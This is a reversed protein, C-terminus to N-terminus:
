SGVAEDALENREKRTLPARRKPRLGLEVRPSSIADLFMENGMGAELKPVSDLKEKAIFLKEAYIGYSEEQDEDHFTLTTWPEEAADTLFKSTGSVNMEEGDPGTARASQGVVRAESQRPTEGNARQAKHLQAAKVIQSRADIHHFQPRMQCVGTVQTLHLEKERFTGLMYMPKGEAPLVIQGGLTQKNLVKGAENADDFRESRTKGLPPQGGDRAKKGKKDPNFLENGRNGKGFGSSMGFGAAGSEKATKIASGWLMGKSKDFNSAVNTAIDLEMFNTKPKMRMEVPQAGHRFNYPQERDRNPFQLLYVQEQLEPTIYVDYEAIVPDDETEPIIPEPNM